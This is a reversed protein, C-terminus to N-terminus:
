YSITLVVVLSQNINLWLVRSVLKQLTHAVGLGRSIPAAAGAFSIDALSQCVKRALCLIFVARGAANVSRQCAATPSTSFLIRSHLSM